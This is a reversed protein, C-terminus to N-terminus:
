AGAEVLLEFRNLCAAGASVLMSDDDDDSLSRDMDGSGSWAVDIGKLGM